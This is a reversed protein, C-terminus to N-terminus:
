LDKEQLKMQSKGYGCVIAVPKEPTESELLEDGRPPRNGFVM